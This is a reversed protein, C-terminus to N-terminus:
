LGFKDFEEYVVLIADLLAQERANRNIYEHESACDGTKATEALRAENRRRDGLRKLISSKVLMLDREKM